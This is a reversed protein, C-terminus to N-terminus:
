LDKEDAKIYIYKEKASEKIKDCVAVFFAVWCIRIALDTVWLNIESAVLAIQCVGLIASAVGLIVCLLTM